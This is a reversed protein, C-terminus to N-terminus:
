DGVGFFLGLYKHFFMNQQSGQEAVKDAELLYEFSDILTVSKGDVFSDKNYRILTTAALATYYQEKTGLIRAAAEDLYVASKEKKSVGAEIRLEENWKSWFSGFHSILEIYRLTYSGNSGGAPVDILVDGDAEHAQVGCIEINFSLVASAVMIAILCVVIMIKAKTKTTNM